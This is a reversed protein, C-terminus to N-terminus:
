SMHSNNQKSRIVLLAKELDLDGTYLARGVIAGEAGIMKLIKLHTVSSVGGSAIVSVKCFDLLDLTASFNPETLTGDRGIDTYVFRKVGKDMAMRAFDFVTMSTTEQWGHTAVFGKKADISVIISDGFRACAEVVVEQNNVASTGLVVRDAGIGIYREISRMTRIGGGIQVPVKVTAILRRVIDFNCEDGTAAGDLDVIHLREAGMSQWRVAMEVPDNAFVTEKNFDGQYLRVCKGGRIDIAPIIEIQSM